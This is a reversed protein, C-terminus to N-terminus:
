RRSWKFQILICFVEDIGCIFFDMVSDGESLQAFWTIHGELVFTKAFSGVRGESPGSTQEHQEVILRFYFFIICCKSCVFLFFLVFLCVFPFFFDFM